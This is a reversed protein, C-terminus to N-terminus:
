VLKWPSLSVDEHSGFSQFLDAQDEDEDCHDEDDGHGQDHHLDGLSEGGLLVHYAGVPGELGSVNNGLASLPLHVEGLGLQPITEPGDLQDGLVNAILVEGEIVARHLLPQVARELAQFGHGVGGPCGAHGQRHEVGETGAAVSEIEIELRFLGGLDGVGYMHVVLVYRVKGGSSGVAGALCVCLDVLELEDPKDGALGVIHGHGDGASQAAGPLQHAKLHVHRVGAGAIVGAQLHSFPGGILGLGLTEEGHHPDVAIQAVAKEIIVGANEAVLHHQLAEAQVADEEIPVLDDGTNGGGLQGPDVPQAPDGLDIVERAIVEVVIDAEAGVTFHQGQGLFGSILPHLIAKEGYVQVGPGDGLQHVEADEHFGIKLHGPRHLGCVVEEPLRALPVPDMEVTELVHVVVTENEGGPLGGGDDLYCVEVAIGGHIPQGSVGAEPSVGGVGLETEGLLPVEYRLVALM